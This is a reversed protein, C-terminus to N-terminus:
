DFIWNLYPLLRIQSDYMGRLLVVFYMSFAVATGAICLSRLWGRRMRYLVSPILFIQAQILYFGVRSVEPIFSGCCYLVLGALNLYFYYATTRKGMLGEAVDMTQATGLASAEDPEWGTTMRPQEASGAGHLPQAGGASQTRRSQWWAVACLGLTGLCKAINAYSIEGNDFMSNEYYPYFTFIIRRYVGQGFILSLVLLVGVIIHWRRLKVGSLWWAALYAPLVLLISKHITAGLLIWLLFKGYEGRFVYKQAYIALALAFYYRVSNMSNFYFGGTLLLFLSVLYWESLDHLSRLFFFVTVLAFLGFIPLYSIKGETGFIWRMAKVLWVFGFEYSVHRGQDILQFNQWYVWYDGGVAIRCASVGALLAFIAFEAVHNRAQQRNKGPFAGVPRGGAGNWAPTGVQAYPANQIFAAFGLTVITLIIYVWASAEM